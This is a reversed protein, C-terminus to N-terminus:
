LNPDASPPAKEFYRHAVVTAVASEILGGGTRALAGLTAGAIAIGPAFYFLITAIVAVRFLSGISALRTKGRHLLISTYFQRLSALLPLFAMIRWAPLAAASVEPPAGILTVLVFNGAPGVSSLLLFATVTAGAALSFIRGRKHDVPDRSMVLTTQRLMMIAGFGVVALSWAVRFGALALEGDNLRLIGASVLPTTGAMVFQTILLPWLFRLIRGVTAVQEGAFDSVLLDDAVTRRAVLWLVVTEVSPVLVQAFSAVTSARFPVFPAVGFSIGVLAVVGITSATWVPRTRRNLVLISQFFARAIMVIPYVLMIRLAPTVFESIEASAGMADLFIFDGIGPVTLLTGLALFAMGYWISFKRIRDFSDRGKVFVLVLSQLLNSSAALVMMVSSIVAFAALSKIPFNGRSMGADLLPGRLGQILSSAALPLYFM